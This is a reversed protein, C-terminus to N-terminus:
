MKIEYRYQRPCTSKLWPWRIRFRPRVRNLGPTTACSPRWNSKKAATAATTTTAANPRLPPHTSNRGRRRIISPSATLPRSPCSAGAKSRWGIPRITAAITSVAASTRNVRPRRRRRSTMSHPRRLPRDIRCPSRPRPGSPRRLARIVWIARTM